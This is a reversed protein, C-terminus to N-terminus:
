PLLTPGDYRSIALDPSEGFKRVPKNDAARCGEVNTVVIDVPAAVAAMALTEASSCGM